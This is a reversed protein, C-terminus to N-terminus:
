MIALLLVPVCRLMSFSEYFINNFIFSLFIKQTSAKDKCYTHM